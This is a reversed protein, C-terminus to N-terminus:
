QLGAKALLFTIVATVVTIIAKEVLSEWRKAPKLALNQVTGKIDKVDSEMTEQKQAILAVSTVLKENDDLRKEVDEIRHTNSKARDEVRTLRDHEVENM